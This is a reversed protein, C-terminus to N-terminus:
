DKALILTWFTTPDQSVRCFEPSRHSLRSRHFESQLIINELFGEHKGRSENLRSIGHSKQM